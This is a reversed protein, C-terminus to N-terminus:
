TELVYTSLNTNFIKIESIVLFPRVSFFLFMNM